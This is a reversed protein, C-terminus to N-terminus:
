ASKLAAVAARVKEMFEPPLSNVLLWAIAGFVVKRYGPENQLRAEAANIVKHVFSPPVEIITSIQDITKNTTRSILDAAITKADSVIRKRRFLGRLETDNIEFATAVARLIREAKDDDAFDAWNPLFLGGLEPLPDPLDTLM